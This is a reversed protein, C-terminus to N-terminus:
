CLLDQAQHHNPDSFLSALNNPRQSQTEKLPLFPSAMGGNWPEGTLARVSSFGSDPTTPCWSFHSTSMAKKEDWPVHGMLQHSMEQDLSTGSSDLQLAAGVLWVETLNGGSRDGWNAQLSDWAQGLGRGGVGWRPEAWGEQGLCLVCCLFPSHNGKKQGGPGESQWIGRSLHGAGSLSTIM